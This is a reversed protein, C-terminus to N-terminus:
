RSGLTCQRLAYAISDCRPEVGRVSAVRREGPSRGGQGEVLHEDGSPFEARGHWRLSRPEIMGVHGLLFVKNVSKM